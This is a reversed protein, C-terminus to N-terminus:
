TVHKKRLHKEKIIDNWTYGHMNKKNCPVNQRMCTDIKLVYFTLSVYKDNKTVLLCVWECVYLLCNMRLFKCVYAYFM